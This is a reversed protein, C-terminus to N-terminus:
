FSCREIRRTGRSSERNNINLENTDILLTYIGRTVILRNIYTSGIKAYWFWRWDSETLWFHSRFIPEVQSPFINWKPLFSSIHEVETM